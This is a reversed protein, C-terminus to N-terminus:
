LAEEIQKCDATPLMSCEDWIIVDTAQIKGYKDDWSEPDVKFGGKGDPKKGLLAAVTYKKVTINYNDEVMASIKKFLLNTAEHSTASCIV